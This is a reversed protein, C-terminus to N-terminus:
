LLGLKKMSSVKDGAVVFHDLLKLDLARCVQIIARTARVDSASPQHEGSPHNHALYFGSANLAIARSVIPRIRSEVRDPSGSSMLEEAIFGQDEDVFIAHLEEHQKGQMKLVLYRLFSANEPELVTRVVNELLATEMLTRAAILMEGIEPECECAKILQRDPATMARGLSGFHSLLSAAVNEAKGGAIPSLLKAM